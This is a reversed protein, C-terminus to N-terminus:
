AGRTGRGGRGGVYVFACNWKPQTHYDVAIVSTM